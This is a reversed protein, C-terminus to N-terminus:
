LDDTEIGAHQIFSKLELIKDFAQQITLVRGGCCKCVRVDENIELYGRNVEGCRECGHPLMPTLDTM